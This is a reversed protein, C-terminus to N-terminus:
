FLQLIKDEPLHWSGLLQGGNYGLSTLAIMPKFDERDGLLGSMQANTLVPAVALTQLDMRLLSASKLEVLLAVAGDGSLGIPFLVCAETGAFTGDPNKEPPLAQAVTADPSEMILHRASSDGKRFILPPRMMAYSPKIAIGVGAQESYFLRDPTMNFPMEGADVTEVPAGDANVFAFRAAALLGGDINEMKIGRQACVAGGGALPTASLTMFEGDSALPFPVPMPLKPEFVRMPEAPNCAIVRGDPGITASSTNLPRTEGTTMDVLACGVGGSRLMLLDGRCQVVMPRDMWMARIAYGAAGGFRELLADAEDQGVRGMLLRMAIGSADASDALHLPTQVGSAADLIFMDLGVMPPVDPLVRAMLFRAGDQNAGIVFSPEGDPAAVDLLRPTAVDSLVLAQPALLLCVTLVLSLLTKM